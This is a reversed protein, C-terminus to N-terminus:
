ELARARADYDIRLVAVDDGVRVHDFVGRLYRDRQEVVAREGRLDNALIRTRVHRHQLDLRRIEGLDRHGIRVAGLDSIEDDGDAIRKAETMRHRGADYARETAGTDVRFAIFIEDLRI